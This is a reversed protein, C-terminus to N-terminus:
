GEQDGAARSVYQQGFPASFIAEANTKFVEAIKLALRLRPTRVGAEIMGYYSQTIGVAEAVDRQTLRKAERLRILETRRM